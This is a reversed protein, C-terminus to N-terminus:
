SKGDRIRAEANDTHIPIPVSKLGTADHSVVLWDGKQFKFTEQLIDPTTGFADIVRQRDSIRPLKSIFYTHPQAMISTNLYTVRQTAILVGLGFKRGRRALTEVAATSTEYTGTANQPIFEDAEDFVFLTLPLHLGSKRRESYVSHRSDAAIDYAFRRIEDENEGQIIYLSAGKGGSVLPDVLDKNRDVKFEELPEFFDASNAAAAIWAELLTQSGSKQALRSKNKLHDTLANLNDRTFPMAGFIQYIEKTIRKSEMSVYHEPTHEDLFQGITSHKQVHLRIKGASFLRSFIEKYRQKMAPNRLPAPMHMSGIFADRAGALDKRDTLYQRVQMPLSDRGLFCMYGNVRDLVDALLATYEGMLDFIVVNVPIPNKELLKHVLTSVLNSKGTGTYGFVGIHTRVMDEVQLDIDVGGKQIHGVTMTKDDLGSNFIMGVLDAGLIRAPGGFMPMQSEERIRLDPDEVLEQGTHTASVKIKTTEESSVDDQSLFDKYVEDRTKELFVPYGSMQDGATAYHFPMVSTISLISYHKDGHSYSFSPVSILDGAKLENMLKRTYDFWVTYVYGHNEDFGVDMLRGTEERFTM